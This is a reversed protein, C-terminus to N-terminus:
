SKEKDHKLMGFVILGQAIGYTLMILFPAYEIPDDFKNYAILSDSLMFVLSGVFVWTFSRLSTRQYRNLAMISMAAIALVYIIVPLVLDVLKGRLSWLILVAVGGLLIPLLPLKKILPVQLLSSCGKVFTVLYMLHALLFSGLGFAFCSEPFMLLLDGILSLILAILLFPKYSSPKSRYTSVVMILLLGVLGGKLVGYVLSHGLLYVDTGDIFSYPGALHAAVAAILIWILYVKPIIKQIM